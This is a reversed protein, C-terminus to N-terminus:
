SVVLGEKGCDFLAWTYGRPPSVSYRRQWREFGSDVVPLDSLIACQQWGLRGDREKFQSCAAVRLGKFAMKSLLNTCTKADRMEQLFIISRDGKGRFRGIADSLDGAAAAIRKAEAEPTGRHEARGSPFWNGNWTGVVVAAVIALVHSM